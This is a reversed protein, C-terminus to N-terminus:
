LRALLYGGFAALLGGGVQIGANLLALGGQGSRLLVLSELSFASFTTYGGLLGVVLFLRLGAGPAHRHEVLGAVFGILLSGILNVALTGLPLGSLPGAPVLRQAWAGTAYRAVSGLAGGLGVLLLERGGM